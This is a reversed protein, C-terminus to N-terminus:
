IAALALVTHIFAMRMIPAFTEDYDFDPRQAFGKAVLRTKIREVTRDANYKKAFVLHCPIAKKGAPLPCPTWTGNALHADIEAQAAAQWQVGDHQKLADSMSRPVAESDGSHVRHASEYEDDDDDPDISSAVEDESDGTTQPATENAPAPNIKWWEGPPCHNRLLYRAASSPGDATDGADPRTTSSQV